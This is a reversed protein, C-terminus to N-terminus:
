CEFMGAVRTYAKIKAYARVAQRDPKHVFKELGGMAADGYKGVMDAQFERFTINAIAQGKGHSRDISHDANAVGAVPLHATLSKCVIFSLSYEPVMKEQKRLVGQQLQELVRKLMIQLGLKPANMGKFAADKVAKLTVEDAGRISNVSIWQEGLNHAMQECASLWFKSDLQRALVAYWADSTAKTGESNLVVAQSDHHEAAKRKPMREIKFRRRSASFPFTRPQQNTSPLHCSGEFANLLTALSQCVQRHANALYQSLLM